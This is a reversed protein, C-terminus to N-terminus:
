AHSGRQITKPQRQDNIAVYTFLGETVHVTDGTAKRDAWAEIKITISTTGIKHVATYFSVEDGVFVPQHFSMAEIGVTVIRSQAYAYAAVGGAIDMQALLWGGFIDGGPNADSITTTTRITPFRDAKNLSETTMNKLSHESARKM